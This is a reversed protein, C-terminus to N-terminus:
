DEIDIIFDDIESKTIGVKFPDEVLIENYVRKIDPIVTIKLEGNQKFSKSILKWNVVIVNEEKLPKIFIEDSIYIDDGVLINKKPIISILQIEKDIYIDPTITNYEILSYKPIIKNTKDLDDIDGNIELIIKFEEIPANGTNQIKINFKAFSQNIKIKYNHFTTIPAFIKQQNAFMGFFATTTMENIPVIKPKYIIVSERFKPNIELESKGNEFTVKVSNNSKFNISNVYFNYTDPNENILDVIDEWCYLHVEFIKKEIHEINKIRIYEEINADKNATTAFYFKKLKPKFKLAYNIEKDIENKTLAKNTYLDKGKCQIGYYESEYKPIGYIDVGNQSQGQRGNKKIEPCKWIEGWLKKCLNEFDQWNEPNRLQQSAKM